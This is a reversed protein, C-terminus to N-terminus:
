ASPDGKRERIAAARMAKWDEHVSEKLWIAEKEMENSIENPAVWGNPLVDGPQLSCLAAEAYARFDCASLDNVHAVKIAEAVRERLDDTM